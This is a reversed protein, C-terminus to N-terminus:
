GSRVESLLMFAEEATEAERRVAGQVFVGHRKSERLALGKSLSSSSSAPSGDGGALLDHVAECYIQVYQIQVRYSVAAGTAKGDADIHSFLSRVARHAVGEHRTGLQAIEGITYTKGSGTQGYALLTGNSRLVHPIRPADAPTATQSM